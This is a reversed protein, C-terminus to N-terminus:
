VNHLKHSNGSTFLERLNRDFKLLTRRSKTVMKVPRFFANWKVSYEGLYSFKLQLM